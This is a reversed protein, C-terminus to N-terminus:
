LNSDLCSSKELLFAKDTWVSQHPTKLTYATFDSRFWRGEWWEQLDSSDETKQISTHITTFSRSCSFWPQKKYM